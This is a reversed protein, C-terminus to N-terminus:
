RPHSSTLGAFNKLLSLSLNQGAPGHLRAQGVECRCARALVGRWPWSSDRMRKAGKREKAEFVM